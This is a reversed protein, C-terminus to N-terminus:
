AQQRKQGFARCGAWTTLLWTGYSVRRCGSSQGRQHGCWHHTRGQAAAADGLRKQELWAGRWARGGFSGARDFTGAADRYGPGVAFLLRFDCLGVDMVERRGFSDAVSAILDEVEAARKLCGTYLLLTDRDNAM